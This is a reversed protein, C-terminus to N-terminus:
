RILSFHGRHEKGDKRIVVFWYDTAPLPAGNYTGDWGSDNHKLEKIFKGFRDFIRVTLGKEYNSFKIRWRDNHGDGNPSFFKPYNLLFVDKTTQGCDNKDKIYVTYNGSSLNTFSNSNQFHIGDLSYEYNGISGGTLIVSITNENETWDTTVINRIVPANSTVVSINKTTSCSVMGHNQTVTVTYNGPQSVTISSTTAGTSWLYSSYNGSANLIITNNSCIAMVDPIEIRPPNVLTLTLRVVQYCGNAAQARVYVINSGMTLGYNTYNNISANDSQNEAGSLTTYYSFNISTDSVINTNFSTLDVLETNNNQDDCIYTAYDQANVTHTLTVHIGIRPGECGNITQTAFYTTNNQIITTAPLITNGTSSDYWKISNGTIQIDALTANQNDCLIQSTTANPLPTTVLSVTIPILSSECNNLTQSAYYTTNDQLLTGTNVINGNLNDYWLINQGSITIDAITANQQICFSQPNSATPEPTATINVNQTQTISNTGSGYHWTITYSGPITYTLPDTTIGQILGSCNDQATPITTIVTNCDGNIAPLNLLSPTPIAANGVTVNLTITNDCGGTGTIVCSYQGNHLATVNQITPNQLTSSFGNPGSWQYNTGGSATLELNGNICVPSNSSATTASHCDKFKVLFTDAGITNGTPVSAFDPQHSGTTAIGTRSVSTGYLIIDNSSDVATLGMQDSIEGGYYTGWERQGSSNLKVLYVTSNYSANIKTPMYADPTTIGTSIKTYGSFYVDQNQNASLGMIMDPFYTGWVKEQTAVDFKIIYSSEIISPMINPILQFTEFFTGPTGIGSQGMTKGVLYIATGKLKGFHINDNATSGLYTGWIRQGDLGFKIIINDSGGNLSTQYAGPTAINNNSWSGGVAYLFNDDSILCSNFSEAGTGGYYTGWIRVGQTSFKVLFADTTSNAADINPKHSGATAIGTGSDTQGCLYVNNANDAIIGRASDNFNGGYYTGWERLGNTNLKVVYADRHIDKNPQHCGPTTLQAVPTTTDGAFYVNYDKDTCLVIPFATHYTAWIRNGNPDFKAIFGNFGTTLDPQYSGATAINNPSSTIGSIYINNLNDTIIDNINESGSGGYYTGWLRIPVPDIVITKDNYGAPGAFGYTNKKIKKYQIAIEKRNKQNDEIWSAPMVEEMSGFRVRMKIKNDELDTKAGKVEFQIDSLRAGPKLIFNYEVAKSHDDPIFFLLDINPYLEQYVVKQYTYVKAVPTNISSTYYNEYDDSKEKGILAVNPNANLFNIDVRHFSYQSSTKPKTITPHEPFFLADEKTLPVTKIDYLDYSFGQKKLQVNLGRTHLLYAVANNATGKQDVIQGVNEKFGSTESKNQALLIFSPFFLLLLFYRICTKTIFAM